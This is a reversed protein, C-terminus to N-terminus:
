AQDEHAMICYFLRGEGPTVTSCFKKADDACGAQLKQIGAMIRAQARSAADSQANATAGFVVSMAAVSAAFTIKRTTSRMLIDKKHRRTTENQRRVAEYIPAMFAIQDLDFDRM